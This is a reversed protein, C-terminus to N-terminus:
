PTARSHRRARADRVRLNGANRRALDLAAGVAAPRDARHRLLGFHAHVARRCMGSTTASYRAAPCVARHVRRGTSVRRATPWARGRTSRSRRRRNGTAGVARRDQARHRGGARHGRVHRRTRACRARATRPTSYSTDRPGAGCRPLQAGRRRAAMPARRRSGRHVSGARRAAIADSLEPLARELAGTTYLFRWTRHGGDRLLDFFSETTERDWTFTQETLNSLWELLAPGPQSTKSERRPASHSSSDSIRRRLVRWTSSEM